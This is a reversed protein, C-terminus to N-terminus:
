WDMQFQQREDKYKQRPSIPATKEKTDADTEEKADQGVDNAAQQPKPVTLRSSTYTGATEDQRPSPPKALASGTLVSEPAKKKVTQEDGSLPVLHAARSRPSNPIERAIPRQKYYFVFGAVLVVFLCAAFAGVAITMNVKTFQAREYSINMVTALRSSLQTLVSQSAQRTLWDLRPEERVVVESEVLDGPSDAEDVSMHYSKGSRVLLHALEGEAVHGNRNVFAARDVEGDATMTTRALGSGDVVANAAAWENLTGSRLEGEGVHDNRINLGERELEGDVRITAAATRSDKQMLKQREEFYHRGKQRALNGDAAADEIALANLLAFSLSIHLCGSGFSCFRSRRGGCQFSFM